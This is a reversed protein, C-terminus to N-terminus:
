QRKMERHFKVRSCCGAFGELSLKLSSMGCRKSWDAQRIFKELEDTANPSAPDIEKIASRAVKRFQSPSPDFIGIPKFEDTEDIWKLLKEKETIAEKLAAEYAAVGKDDKDSDMKDLFHLALPLKGGAESKSLASNQFYGGAQCYRFIL